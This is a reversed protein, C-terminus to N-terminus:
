RSELIFTPAYGSVTSYNGQAASIRAVCGQVKGLFAQPSVEVNLDRYVVDGYLDVPFSVPHPEVREQVVYSQRLAQRCARDWAADSMTAGDFTPLEGDSDNPRLVLGHRHKLIYDPLDIEVGGRRTRGAVVLRTWPIAEEIAKREALPFSGTVTEDSLLAFLARKRTMETRFSNVVCVKGERYARVLPHTLDFHLMFEHATVGRYVVDVVVGDARLVGGRYEMQDPSIIEAEFNARRFVEALLLHEQTNVTQFPQKFELIAIRPATRGGFEKWAKLLAALLPKVASVKELRFRKRIDKVPALDYFLDSLIEGYVVGHPLDAQGGTVQLTGNNVHTELLASVAPSAYGPDVAALMKEAPLMEMRAMLQPDEIVLLRLRDIATHLSEASKVVNIYQRRSLFHPRLVPSIPRGAVVLRRAAMQDRLEAVWDSTRVTDSELTKHYRAVAEELQTM